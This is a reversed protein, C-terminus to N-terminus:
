CNPISMSPREKYLLEEFTIRFMTGNNTEIEMEGDLQKTLDQVLKLGLSKTNELSFGKPLGV